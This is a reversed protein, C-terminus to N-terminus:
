FEEPTYFVVLSQGVSKGTAYVTVNIENKGENLTIKAAFKGDGGVTVVDEDQLGAVVVSSAPLSTGSVLLEAKNVVAEPLPSDIVVALQPIPTPTLIPSPSPKRSTLGPLAVKPLTLKPLTLGRTLNPGIILIGTILLGLAFGILTALIADRNM